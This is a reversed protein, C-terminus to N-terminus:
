NLSEALKKDMQAEEEPTGKDYRGVITGNRDILIKTPLSHIGFKDAIFRENKEGKMAKDRDFGSLVNNWIGVGDTAIAKRWADPQDDDEAIGIVEYGKTHYKNFLQIMHPSSHRCPVCWSAWFDLMVYKGKFASLDLPKGNVDTTTFNAAISGPSGALLKTIQVSLEKGYVSQQIVPNMRGYYMKLSDVSLTGVYRQLEYVTVYSNPHVDFFHYDVQAIRSWYPDFQDHIASAKEKLDTTVKDSEKNKVAQIYKINADRFAQSLPKMEEYIPAKLKELEANEDQTKSGTIVANKFDGATAQFTMNGPEIFFDTSNPDEVNRSKIAGYFYIIQPGNINGKFNFGGNKLACSDNIWKSNNDQYSLHVYGTNQGTIQGTIEFVQAKTILTASLLLLALIIHKKM